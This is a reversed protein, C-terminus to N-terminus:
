SWSKEKLTVMSNEDAAAALKLLLEAWAEMLKPRDLQLVSEEDSGAMILKVRLRESSAKKIADRQETTIKEM